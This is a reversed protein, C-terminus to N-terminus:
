IMHLFFILFFIQAMVSSTDQSSQMRSMKLGFTMTRCCAQLYKCVINPRVASPVYSGDSCIHLKLTLVGVYGIIALIIAARLLKLTLNNEKKSEKKRLYSNSHYTM